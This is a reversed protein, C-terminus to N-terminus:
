SRDIFGKIRLFGRRGLALALPRSILGHRVAERLLVTKAWSRLQKLEHKEKLQSLVDEPFSLSIISSSSCRLSYTKGKIKVISRVKPM